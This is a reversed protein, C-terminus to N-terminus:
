TGCRCGALGAVFERLIMVFEHHASWQPWCKVHKWYMIRLVATLSAWMRDSKLGFDARSLAGLM